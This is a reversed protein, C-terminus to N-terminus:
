IRPAVEPAVVQISASLFMVACKKKFGHIIIMMRYVLDLALVAILSATCSLMTDVAALRGPAAAVVFGSDGSGHLLATQVMIREVGVEGRSLVHQSFGEIKKQECLFIIIIM